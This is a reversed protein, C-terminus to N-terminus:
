KIFDEIANIQYHINSNYNSLKNLWVEKLQPTINEKPMYIHLEAKNFQITKGNWTIGGSSLGKELDDINGKTAKLWDDVSTVRTTKMSVATEAVIDNGKVTFNNYFDVGKFNDAIDATHAWGDAKTYRYEGMVDEFFSRGEMMEQAPYKTKWVFKIDELKEALSKAMFESLSGLGKKVKQINEALKETIEPLNKVFTVGAVTSMIANGVGRTALHSRKGMDATGDITAKWQEATNRTAVSLVVEGLIPFFNVPDEGIENKIEKFQNYMQSRAEKDFAMDYIMFGLNTIDTVRQAGVEASGTLLGPAHISATKETSKLYAFEEIEGTKLLTVTLNIGDSILKSYTTNNGGIVIKEGDAFAETSSQPVATSFSKVNQEQLLKNTKEKINKSLSVLDAQKGDVIKLGQRFGFSKIQIIGNNDVTYRIKNEKTDTWKGNEIESDSLPQEVKVLQGNVLTFITLVNGNWSELEVSQNARANAELIKLNNFVNDNTGSGSGSCAAIVEVTEEPILEPAENYYNPYELSKVRIKQISLKRKKITKNDNEYEILQSVKWVESGPQVFEAIQNYKENGSYYGGFSMGNNGINTIKIDGTWINNGIRFKYLYGYDKINDEDPPCYYLIEANAPLKVLSKDPAVFTREEPIVVGKEPSKAKETTATFYSKLDQAFADKNVNGTEIGNQNEKIKEILDDKFEKSNIAELTKQKAEEIEEPSLNKFEPLQSFDTSNIGNTVGNIFNDVYDNIDKNLKINEYLEDILKDMADWIIGVADTVQNVYEKAADVDLVFNPNDVSKFDYDIIKNDTNVKLDWYDCLFKVGWIRVWFLFQGKYVGNGQPIVSKIIFHSHGSRTHITDGPQLDYRLNFNTIPPEPGTDGCECDPCIEADTKIAPIVVTQWATFDSPNTENNKCIAQVRM